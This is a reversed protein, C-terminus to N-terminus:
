TSALVSICEVILFFNKERQPSIEADSFFNDELMDSTLQFQLHHLLSSLKLILSCSCCNSCRKNPLHNEWAPLSALSRRISTAKTVKLM